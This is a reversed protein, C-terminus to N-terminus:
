EDGGFIQMVRGEGVGYTLAPISDEEIEGNVLFLAIKVIGKEKAEDKGILVIDHMISEELHESFYAIKNMPQRYERIDVFEDNITKNFTYGNYLSKFTNATVYGSADVDENLDFDKTEVIMDNDDYFLAIAHPNFDTNRAYGYSEYSNSLTVENGEVSDLIFSTLQEKQPNANTYFSSLVGRYQTSWYTGQDCTNHNHDEKCNRGMSDVELLQGGNGAFAFRSLKLEAKKNGFINQGNKQIELELTLKDQYYQNITVTAVGNIYSTSYGYGEGVVNDFDRLSECNNAGTNVIPNATKKTLTLKKTGYFLEVNSELKDENFAAVSGGTEHLIDSFNNVDVGVDFGVFNSSYVNFATYGVEVKGSSLKKFDKFVVIYCTHHEEDFYSNNTELLQENDLRADSNLWSSGEGFHRKATKYENYAEASAFDLKLACGNDACSDPLILDGDRYDNVLMHANTNDYDKIDVPDGNEKLDLFYIDIPAKMAYEVAVQVKNDTTADDPIIFEYEDYDPTFEYKRFFGGQESGAEFGLDLKEENYTVSLSKVYYGADATVHIVGMYHSAAEELNTDHVDIDCNGHETEGSETLNIVTRPNDVNLAFVTFASIILVTIISFFITKKKNM